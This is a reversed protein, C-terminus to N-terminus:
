EVHRQCRHPQAQSPIEKRKEKQLFSREIFVNNKTAKRRENKEGGMATKVAGPVTYNASTGRYNAWANRNSDKLSFIRSPMTLRVDKPVIAIQLPDM